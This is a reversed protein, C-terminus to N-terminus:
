TGKTNKPFFGQEWTKMHRAPWPIASSRPLAPHRHSQWPRVKAVSLTTSSELDFDMSRIRILSFALLFRWPGTFIEFQFTQNFNLSIWIASATCAIFGLALTLVKQYSKQWGPQCSLEDSTTTAVSVGPTSGSKLRLAVGSIPSNEGNEGNEGWANAIQRQWCKKSLNQQRCGRGATRGLLSAKQCRRQM